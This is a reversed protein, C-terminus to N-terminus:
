AHESAEMTTMFNDLYPVNNLFSVVLIQLHQQLIMEPQIRVFSKKLLVNPDYNTM